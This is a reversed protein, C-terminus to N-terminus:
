NSVHHLSCTCNRATLYDSTNTQLDTFPQALLGVSEPTGYQLACDGAWRKVAMSQTERLASGLLLLLANSFMEPTKGCLNTM